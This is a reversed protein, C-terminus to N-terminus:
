NCALFLAEPHLNRFGQTDLVQNTAPTLNSSVVKPNHAKCFLVAFIWYISATANSLELGLSGIEGTFQVSATGLKPKLCATNNLPTAPLLKQGGLSLAASSPV